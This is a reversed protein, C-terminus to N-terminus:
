PEERSVDTDQTVVAYSTMKGNLTGYMLTFRGGRIRIDPKGHVLAHHALFGNVLEGCDLCKWNDCVSLVQSPGWYVFETYENM